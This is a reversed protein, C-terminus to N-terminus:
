PIVMGLINQRPVAGYVRSDASNDRNDGLVFYQNQGCVWMQSRYNPGAYTKTHPELYPEPLLKGNVFLRGGEVYVSDGPQAVIRKVALGNDAPDRLVVIDKPKPERIRYVLHNLLYWKANPLTPSMSTGDVQVSQLIYRQSFRFFGYTAVLVLLYIAAQKLLRGPLGRWDRRPQLTTRMKSIKSPGAFEEYTHHM